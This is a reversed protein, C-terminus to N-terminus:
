PETPPNKWVLLFAMVLILFGLVQALSSPETTRVYGIAYEMVRQWWPPDMVAVGGIALIMAIGYRAKGRRLRRWNDIIDQILTKSPDRWACPHFRPRKRRALLEDIAARPDSAAMAKAVDHMVDKLSQWQGNDLVRAIERCRDCLRMEKVSHLVLKKRVRRHFLCDKPGDDHLMPRGVVWRMNISVLQQFVYGEIPLGDILREVDYTTAIALGTLSGDDDEETHSFINAYRQGILPRDTFLIVRDHTGGLERLAPRLLAFVEVTPVYKGAVEIDKLVRATEVPLNLHEPQFATQFDRFWPLVKELQATLAEDTCAVETVFTAV